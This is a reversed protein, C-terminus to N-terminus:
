AAVTDADACGFIVLVPVNDLRDTDPVALIPFIFKDLILTVPCITDVRAVPVAGNATVEVVCTAFKFTAVDPTAPVTVAAACGFMVDSPVNDETDTEPLAVTPLKTPATAFPFEFMLMGLAFPFTLMLATPLALISTTVPVPAFMVPVALMVPLKLTPPLIPLACTQVGTM